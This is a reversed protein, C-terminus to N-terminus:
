LAKRFKFNASFKVKCRLKNNKSFIILVNEDIHCILTNIQTSDMRDARDINRIHETENPSNFFHERSESRQFCDAFQEHFGKLENIFDKVDGKGSDVKPIIYLHEDCSTNLLM